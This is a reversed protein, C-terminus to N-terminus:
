QQNRIRNLREAMEAKQEESVQRPASIKIFSLPLHACVSGDANEAVIEVDEYAEALKKVKNIHKQQTLSVTVRNQGTLWEITNERM